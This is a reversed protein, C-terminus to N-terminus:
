VETMSIFKQEAKNDGGPYTAGGLYVIRGDPLLTAAITDMPPPTNLNNGASWIFQNTDFIDFDNRVIGGNVGGFSYIKANESCVGSSLSRRIPKSGKDNVITWVPNSINFAFVLPATDDEFTGGFLFITDKNSGCVSSTATAHNPISTKDSLDVIPLDSDLTFPKSVDLYFFDNTYTKENTSGGLFYIKNDVYSATHQVRNLLTYSNVVTALLQFICICFIYYRFM